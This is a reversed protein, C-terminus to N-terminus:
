SPPPLAGAPCCTQAPFLPTLKAAAYQRGRRLWTRCARTLAPHYATRRWRTSAHGCVPLQRSSKSWARQRGVRGPSLTCTPYLMAAATAKSFGKARFQLALMSHL